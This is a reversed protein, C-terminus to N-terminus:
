SPPSKQRISYNIFLSKFIKIWKSQHRYISKTQKEIGKQEKTGEYKLVKISKREIENIGM